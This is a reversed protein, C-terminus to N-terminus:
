KNEDNGKGGSRDSVAIWASVPRDPGEVHQQPLVLSLSFSALQGKPLRNRQKSKESAQEIDAQSHSGVRAVEPPAAPMVARLADPRPVGSLSAHCRVARV